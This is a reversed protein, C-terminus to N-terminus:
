VLWPEESGALGGITRVVEDLLPAEMEVLHGRDPFRGENVDAIYKRFAARREQQLRRHEAAFNARGFPVLRWKDRVGGGRRYAKAHRPPLEDYDGLIDDSVTCKQAPPVHPPVDGTARTLGRRGAAPCRGM